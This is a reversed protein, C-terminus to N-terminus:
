LSSVTYFIDSKRFSMWSGVLIAGANFKAWSVIAPKPLGTTGSTYILAAINRALDETRSSDPERIADTSLIEAELEPTLVKFDVTPLGDRLEETFNDQIEKDIFTLCTTSAKICHALQTGTLNYNIFAPKAGIAWLGFWLFIYKESNMFDMAVIDKSKVNCTNKLWTGYKLVIQYTEKYTWQRGEFILFTVNARKGLAYEELRYFINLRDKKERMSMVILGKFASGFLRVDYGLATKANIYALGAAAAPAVLALPVTNYGM